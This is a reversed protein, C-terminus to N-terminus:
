GAGGPAAHPRRDLRHILAPGGRFSAPANRSRDPNGAIAPTDQRYPVEAQWWDGDPGRTWRATLKGRPTTWTTVREDASESARVEIGPAEQRWVTQPRWAAVGLSSCIEDIGMEKWPDPLTGRSALWRHWLTLDPLFAVSSVTHTLLAAADHGPEIHM